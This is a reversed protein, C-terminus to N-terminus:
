KPPPNYYTATIVKKLCNYFKATYDEGGDFYLFTSSYALRRMHVEETEYRNGGQLYALPIVHSNLNTSHFIIKEYSICCTGTIECVVTFSKPPAFKGLLM